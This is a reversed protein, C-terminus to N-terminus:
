ENMERDRVKENLKQPFKIPSFSSTTTTATATTTTATATDHETEMVTRVPSMARGKSPSKQPSVAISAIKQEFEASLARVMPLKTPSEDDAQTQFQVPQSLYLEDGADINQSLIEREEQDSETPLLSVRKQLPQQSTLDEDSKHKATIPSDVIFHAPAQPENLLLPRTSEQENLKDKDGHFEEFLDDISKREKLGEFDLAFTRTVKRPSRYIPEEAEGVIEKLNLLAAPQQSSNLNLQDIAAAPPSLLTSPKSPSNLSACIEVAPIEESPPFM